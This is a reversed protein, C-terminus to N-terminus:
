NVSPLDKDNFSLFGHKTQALEAEVGGARGGTRVGPRDVPGLSEPSQTTTLQNNEGIM